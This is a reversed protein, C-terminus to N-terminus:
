LQHAHCHSINRLEEAKDRFHQEGYAPAMGLAIQERNKVKLGEIEAQVALLMGLRVVDYNEM